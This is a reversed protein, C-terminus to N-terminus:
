LFDWQTPPCPDPGGVQGNGFIREEKEEVREASREGQSPQLVELREAACTRAQDVVSSEKDEDRHSTHIQLTKPTQIKGPGDVVQENAKEGPDRTYKDEM